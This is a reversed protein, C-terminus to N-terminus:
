DATLRWLPCFRVKSGKGTIKVVPSRGLELDAVTVRTVEDARSGTNYLFLLLTYDRLGQTTATNPVDLLADMETKDLYSMVPSSTKKFPIARIQTRWDLYEPSHEGVYRSFAHIAALRQNRTAVSCGRQHELHLLFQRILDPSLHELALREISKSITAAAFPLLLIMTDRYSVQTNHALNREGVLHEMLFRRVWPGVLNVDTM